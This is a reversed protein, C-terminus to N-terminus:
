TLNAVVTSGLNKGLDTILCRKEDSLWCGGGAWRKHPAIHSQGRYKYVKLHTILSFLFYKAKPLVM